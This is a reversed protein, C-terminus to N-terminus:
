TKRRYAAIAAEIATDIAAPEEPQDALVADATGADELHDLVRLVKVGRVMWQERETQYDDHSIKGTAFDEDLDRINTLIRQYIVQLREFQQEHADPQAAAATGARLLPLGVAALTVLLLIMGAILGEPSM